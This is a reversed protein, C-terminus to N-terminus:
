YIKNMFADIRWIRESTEEAAYFFEINNPAMIVQREEESNEENGKLNQNRHQLRYEPVEKVSKYDQSYFVSGDKSEKQNQRLQNFENQFYLQTM